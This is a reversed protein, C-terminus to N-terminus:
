QKGITKIMDLLTTKKISDSVQSISNAHIMLANMIDVWEDKTNIKDLLPHDALKEADKSIDKFGMGTFTSRISDDEGGLQNFPVGGFSQEKITKLRKQKDQWEHINFKKMKKIKIKVLLKQLLM